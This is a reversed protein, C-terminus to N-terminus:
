KSTSYLEKLRRQERYVDRVACSSRCSWSPSSTTRLSAWFNHQVNREGLTDVELCVVDLLGLPRGGLALIRVEKQEGFYTCGTRV